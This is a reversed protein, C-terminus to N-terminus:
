ELSKNEKQIKIIDEMEENPTILTAMDSEFINKQIAVDTASAAVTLGLSISDCRATRLENKMLPLVATLLSM